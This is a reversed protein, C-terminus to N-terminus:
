GAKRVSDCRGAQWADRQLRADGLVKDPQQAKELLIAALRENAEGRAIDFVPAAVAARLPLDATPARNPVKCDPKHVVLAAELLIPVPRRPPAAPEAHQLPLLDHGRQEGAAGGRADQMPAATLRVHQALSAHGIANGDVAKANRPEHSSYAGCGRLGEVRLHAGWRFVGTV